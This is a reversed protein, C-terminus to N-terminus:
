QKQYKRLIPKVANVLDQSADKSRRTQRKHSATSDKCKRSQCGMGIVRTWRSFHTVRTIGTKNGDIFKGPAFSHVKLCKPFPLKGIPVGPVGDEYPQIIYFNEDSAKLIKTLKTADDSTVETGPFIIMDAAEYDPLFAVSYKRDYDGATLCFIAVLLIGFKTIGPLAKM